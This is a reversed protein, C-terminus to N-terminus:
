KTCVINFTEIAELPAIVFLSDCEILPVLMGDPENGTLSVLWSLWEYLGLSVFVCYSEYKSLSVIEM